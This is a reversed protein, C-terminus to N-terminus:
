NENKGQVEGHLIISIEVPYNALFTDKLNILESTDFWTTFEVRNSVSFSQLQSNNLTVSQKSEVPIFYVGNFDAQLFPPPLVLGESQLPGTKEFFRMQFNLPFPCGNNVNYELRVKSLSYNGNILFSFSDIISVPEFIINSPIKLVSDNEFKLFSTQEGSQFVLTDWDHLLDKFEFNGHFLPSVIDMDWDEKMQIEDVKFEDLICSNLFLATIFVGFLFCLKKDIVSM